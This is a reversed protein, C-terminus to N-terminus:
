LWRMVVQKGPPDLHYGVGWKCVIEIGFPKLKSRLHCLRVQLGNYATDPEEKDWYLLQIMQDASLTRGSLLGGMIKSESSTLEWEAPLHTASASLLGKLLENEAELLDLREHSKDM